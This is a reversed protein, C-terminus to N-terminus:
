VQFTSYTVDATVQLLLKIRATEATVLHVICMLCPQPFVACTAVLLTPPHDVDQKVMVEGRKGDNTKMRDCRAFGTVQRCLKGIRRSLTHVAVTLVVGVIIGQALLAAGTMVGVVPQQPLKIVSFAAVENQVTRMCIDGTLFTVFFTFFVIGPLGQVTDVTMAAIINVRSAEASPARPTMDTLRETLYSRHM